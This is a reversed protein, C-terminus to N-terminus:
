RLSPIIIGVDPDSNPASRSPPRILSSVFAACYELHRLVWPLQELLPAFVPASCARPLVVVACVM